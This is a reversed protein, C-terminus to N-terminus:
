CRIPATYTTNQGGNVMYFTENVGSGNDAANLTVTVSNNFSGNETVGSIM